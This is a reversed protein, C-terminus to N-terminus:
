TFPPIWIFLSKKNTPSSNSPVAMTQACDLVLLVPDLPLLEAVVPELAVVGSWFWDVVPVVPEVVPAVDLVPVELSVPVWPVAAVEPWVPVEPASAFPVAPLELLAFAM